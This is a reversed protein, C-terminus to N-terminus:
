RPSAVRGWGGGRSAAVQMAKLLHLLEHNHVPVADLLAVLPLSNNDLGRESAAARVLETPQMWPPPMPGQRTCREMRFAHMCAHTNDGEPRRQLYPSPHRCGIAGQTKDQTNKVSFSPQFRDQRSATWQRGSFLTCGETEIAARGRGGGSKLPHLGRASAMNRTQKRMAALRISSSSTTTSRHLGASM